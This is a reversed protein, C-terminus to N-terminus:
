NNDNNDRILQYLSAANVIGTLPQGVANIADSVQALGSRNVIVTDGNRLPPNFRNSAGQSLNLPYSRRTATGNRNIRVLEVNTRNARWNVAGGAALIAQILPTASPLAKTGPSVVEGVVNVNISTPALTTESLEITELVPETAIELRITDGDFLLPNQTQDGELILDMLNVRARKFRPVEGPLRRQLTVNRLDAFPTIGGAKQIADVLTPLGTISVAAETASQESTTLTYLGPREVQGVVSIRLPRPTTLTLQLEPRLLQRKYLSELWNTAQALSLGALRVPGLLPLSATGDNLIQVPGTLEAAGLFRLTLGDGAGLIYVDDQVEPLVRPPPPASRAAREAPQVPLPTTAEVQVAAPVVAPVAAPVVAPKAAPKSHAQQIPTLKAPTVAAVGPALPVLAISSAILLSGGALPTIPILRPM